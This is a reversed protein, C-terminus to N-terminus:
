SKLKELIQMKFGKAVAWGCREAVDAVEDMVEEIPQGLGQSTVCPM